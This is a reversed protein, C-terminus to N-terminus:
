PPSPQVEVGAPWEKEAELLCSVETFGQVERPVPDVTLTAGAVDPALGKRNPAPQAEEELPGQIDQSPECLGASAEKWSSFPKKCLGLM